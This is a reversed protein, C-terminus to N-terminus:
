SVGDIEDAYRNPSTTKRILQLTSESVLLERNRKNENSFRFDQIEFWRKLPLRKAEWQVMWM